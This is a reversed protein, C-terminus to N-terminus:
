RRAGPQPSFSGHRVPFPSVPREGPWGRWTPAPTEAAWPDLGPPRPAPGWPPKGSVEPRPIRDRMVPQLGGLETTEDDAAAWGNVDAVPATVPSQSRPLPRSPMTAPPPRGPLPLSPVTAKYNQPTHAGPGQPPALIVATICMVLLLTMVVLFWFLVGNVLATHAM